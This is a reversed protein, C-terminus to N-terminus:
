SDFFMGFIIAGILCSTAATSAGASGAFAALISFAVALLVLPASVPHSAFTTKLKEM